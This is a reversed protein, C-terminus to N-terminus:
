TGAAALTVEVRRNQARAQASTNPVVPYTEGLGRAGVMEPKVGQSIMYQMVTDARKQSLMENSTIGKARLGAGVPTDDTYGTVLIKDQQEPALIKAMKAIIEKGAGSIQWSGSPFLLDSNVTYKVANQLRTIHAQDASVQQQLEQNQTRLQENETIAKDLQSQSACASLLFPAMLAPLLTSRKLGYTM